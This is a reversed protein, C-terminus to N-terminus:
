QINILKDLGKDRNNMMKEYEQYSDLEDKRFQQVIKESILINMNCQDIQNSKQQLYTSILRDEEQFKSIIEEPDKNEVIHGIISKNFSLLTALQTSYDDNFHLIKKEYEEKIKNREHYYKNPNSMNLKLIEIKM